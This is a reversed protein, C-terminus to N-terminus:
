SKIRPRGGSGEERNKEVEAKLVRVDDPDYYPIRMKGLWIEKKPHIRNKRVHYRFNSTSKVGLLRAAEKATVLDGTVCDGTEDGTKKIKKAM